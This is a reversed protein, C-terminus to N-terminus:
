FLDTAEDDQQEGGEGANDRRAAFAQVAGPRQVGRRRVVFGESHEILERAGGAGSSGVDIAAYRTYQRSASSRWSSARASM